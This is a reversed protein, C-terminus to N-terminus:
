SLRTVCTTVVAQRGLGVPMDLGVEKCVCARVDVCVCVCVGQSWARSPRTYLCSRRFSEETDIGLGVITVVVDSRVSAVVVAHM